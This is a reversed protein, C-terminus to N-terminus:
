GHLHSKCLFNFDCCNFGLLLSCVGMVATTSTGAPGYLRRPTSGRIMASSSSFDDHSTSAITSHWSSDLSDSSFRRSNMFSNQWTTSFRGNLYILLKEIDYCYDPPLSLDWYRENYRCFIRMKSPTTEIFSLSKNTLFDYFSVSVDSLFVVSACWPHCFLAGLYAGGPGWLRLARSRRHCLSEATHRLSPGPSSLNDPTMVPDGPHDSTMVPDAPQASTM